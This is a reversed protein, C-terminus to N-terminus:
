DILEVYRLNKFNFPFRLRVEKLPNTPKENVSEVEGILFQPGTNSLIRDGVEVSIDKPVSFKLNYGSEGVLIINLGSRELWAETESMPYSILKVVASEEGIESIQGLYIGGYAIIKTGIKATGVSDLKILLTDYPISPAQSLVLSSSKAFDSISTKLLSNEVLLKANEAELEIIKNGGFDEFFNRIKSSFYLIPAFLDRAGSRFSESSFELVALLIIGVAFIAAAKHFGKNRQRFSTKM